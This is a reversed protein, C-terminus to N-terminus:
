KRRFDYRDIIYIVKEYIYEQNEEEHMYIIISNQKAVRAEESYLHM